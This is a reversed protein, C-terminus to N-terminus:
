GFEKTESIPLHIFRVKSLQRSQLKIEKFIQHTSASYVVKLFKLFEDFSESIKWEKKLKCMVKNGYLYKSEMVSDLLDEKISEITLFFGKVEKFQIHNKILSLCYKVGELDFTILSNSETEIFGDLLHTLHYRLQQNKILEV